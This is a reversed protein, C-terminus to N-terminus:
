GLDSGRVLLFAVWEHLQCKDSILTSFHCLVKLADSAQVKKWFCRANNNHPDIPHENIKRGYKTRAIVDLTNRNFRRLTECNQAV